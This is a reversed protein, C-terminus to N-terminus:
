RPQITQLIALVENQLSYEYQITLSEKLQGDNLLYLRGSTKDQEAYYFIGQTQGNRNLAVSKNLTLSGAIVRAPVPNPLPQGYESCFTPGCFSYHFQAKGDKRTKSFTLGEFGVAGNGTYGTPFQVTYDSNLRETTWGSQSTSNLTGTSSAPSVDKNHCGVLVALFCFTTLLRM